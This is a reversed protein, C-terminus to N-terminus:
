DEAGVEVAEATAGWVPRVVVATKDEQQAATTPELGAVPEGADAPAPNM